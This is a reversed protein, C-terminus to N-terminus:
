LLKYSSNLFMLYMVCGVLQAIAAVLMGIVALVNLLPIFLLLDLVVAIINSVLYINWVTRGRQETEVAGVSHLLNATTTCVFYVVALNVIASIISLLNGMFGNSFFVGIFDLILSIISLMFATQYGEDDPRARSFGIVMTPAVVGAMGKGFQTCVETLDMRFLIVGIITLIEGYFMLKLGDAAMPYQHYM